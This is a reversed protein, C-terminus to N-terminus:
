GPRTIGVQPEAGEEKRVVGFLYTSAFVVSRRRERRRRHRSEVIEDAIFRYGFAPDGAHIDYAANM